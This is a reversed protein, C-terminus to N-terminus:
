KTQVQILRCVHDKTDELLRLHKKKEAITQNLKEIEYKLDNLEENFTCLETKIKAVLEKSWEEFYRSNNGSVREVEKQVADNMTQVLNKCCTSNDYRDKGFIKKVAKVSRLDFEVVSRTMNEMNLLISNMISKQEDNLVDSDTIIEKCNEKFSVTANEWFSNIQGNAISSFENLIANYRYRVISEMRRLAENMDFGQQEKLASINKWETEFEPYISLNKISRSKFAEDFSHEQGDNGWFDDAASGSDSKGIPIQLINRYVLNKEKRFDNFSKKISQSFEVSRSSASESQKKDLKEALMRQNNDFLTQKKTLEDDREREIERVNDECLRIANQLYETARSCKNYLAYRLAYDAIEHEISALGSNIFLKTDSVAGEDVFPAVEKSKDIINYKYLVKDGRAFKRCRDDYADFADEDIWLSKDDPDSKKSALAIVASLFFIRTSKWKTVKLSQYRERKEALSNPTLADGKNVVIIANSTDISDGTERILDLLNNNDTFDMTDPTTLLILLANTQKSLSEKLIEFHKRNSDSNSGPTDYIVFRYHDDFYTAQRFPICIDIKETDALIKGKNLQDLFNHINMIESDSNLESLVSQLEEKINDPCNDSIEGSNGKFIIDVVEDNTEFSIHYSNDSCTIKSMKATTPDSSSPLIEYGILSNIFASKGASCLGTICIAISEDITDKYKGIEASIDEEEYESNELTSIVDAFRDEIQGMVYPAENFYNRSREYTIRSDSFYAAVVSELSEFDENNGIFDIHLGSNGPNFDKNLLEVIEYARNQFATMTFKDNILESCYEDSIESINVFDDNKLWEYVIEKTYPDCTIRMTNTHTNEM